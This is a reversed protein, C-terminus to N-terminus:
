SLAVRRTEVNIMTAAIAALVLLGAFIGIAFGFGQAIAYGLFSPALLGGLRAMAGAAGMGTARSETPYLEPTFAYLAGWTGLLAFSMILLSTAIMAGGTALTFLLCGLASLLCFGILTPKRGWKEVGYAALAYGPIQALAVLV